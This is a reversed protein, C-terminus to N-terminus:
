EFALHAELQTSVNALESHIVETIQEAKEKDSLEPNNLYNSIDTAKGILLFAKGKRPKYRSSITGGKIRNVLDLLNMGFELFRGRNCDPYIYQPDLYELLDVIQSYREILRAESACFDADIRELPTMRCPENDERFIQRQVLNRLAFVRELITGEAPLGAMGEGQRLLVDCLHAIRNEPDPEYGKFAAPHNKQFVTEIYKIVKEFINMWTEYWSDQYQFLLGTERSLRYVIKRLKKEPNKEYHYGLALPLIRITKDEGKANLEKSTWITMKPMGKEISSVRHTLYTVQGEPALILPFRGTTLIERIDDLSQRYLKGNIVPIYGMSPFLWQMFKGSYTLVDKGYLFHANPVDQLKKDNKKCWLPLLKTITYGLIPPDNLSIHRFTMILRSRGAQFNRFEEYLHEMGIIRPTKLNLVSHIYLYAGTRILRYAKMSFHPHLYPISPQAKVYPKIM